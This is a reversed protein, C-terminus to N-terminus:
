TASSVPDNPSIIISAFCSQALHLREYAAHVVGNDMHIKTDHGYIL